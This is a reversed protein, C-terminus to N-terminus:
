CTPPRVTVAPPTVQHVGNRALVADLAPLDRTSVTSWAAIVTRLDACANAYAALMGPTPAMDGNDQANFQGVFEGSVSVFSPAAERGRRFGGRGTPSGAISDLKADFATIAAAVEAAASATSVGKVAARLADVQHFGDWATRMGGDLKMLLAHQARIETATATSRPDNHVVVSQTYNQGDVTLKLTYTGPPALAGEPSPPTQGPNANIEYSHSFAPPADYRIDWNARNTGIEAPLASLPALWFSPEPPHLAERVPASPVSSQHRVLGGAADFVDLTIERAPKGALSYYIIAGDPPNL